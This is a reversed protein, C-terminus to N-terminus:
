RGQTSSRVRRNVQPHAAPPEESVAIAAGARLLHEAGTPLPRRTIADPALLGLSIPASEPGPLLWLEHARPSVSIDQITRASYAEGRLETTFLVAPQGATTNLVAILRAAPDAEPHILLLAALGAAVATAGVAWGRWFGLRDWWRADDKGVPVPKYQRLASPVALSAEIRGGLDPSPEIPDVSEALPQLRRQWDAVRRRLAPDGTLRREFQDREEGTLLGLFYEGAVADPEDDRPTM